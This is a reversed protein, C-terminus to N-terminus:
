PVKESAILEWTHDTKYKWAYNCDQFESPLVIWLDTVWAPLTLRQTPIGTAHHMVYLRLEIPSYSDICIVFHKQELNEASRLIELSKRARFRTLVGNIWEQLDPCEDPILGGWPEYIVIARNDSSNGDRWLNSIGLKQFKRLIEAHEERWLQDRSVHSFGHQVTLTVVDGIERMLSKLNAEYRLTLTWSGLSRPLKIFYAGRKAQASTASTVRPDIDSKVEGMGVLKEGRYILIDVGENEGAHTATMGKQNDLYSNFIAVTRLENRRSINRDISM